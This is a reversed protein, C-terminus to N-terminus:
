VRLNTSIGFMQKIRCQMKQSMRGCLDISFALAYKFSLKTLIQNEIRNTSANIFPIRSDNDCLFECRYFGKNSYYKLFLSLSLVDAQQKKWYADIVNSDLYLNNGDLYGIEISVVRGKHTLLGFSLNNIYAMRCFYKQYFDYTSDLNTSAKESDQNNTEKYENKTAIVMIQSFCYDLDDGTYVQFDYGSESKESQNNKILDFDHGDKIFFNQNLSSTDIDKKHDPKLQIFSQYSVDRTGKVFTMNLLNHLIGKTKLFDNKNEGLDMLQWIKKAQLTHSFVLSWCKETYNHDILPVTKKFKDLGLFSLTNFNSLNKINFNFQQKNTVVFPFLAVLQKKISDQITIFYLTDTSALFHQYAMYVYSFSNTLDAYSSTFHLINWDDELTELEEFSTLISLELFSADSKGTM